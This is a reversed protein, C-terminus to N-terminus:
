RYLTRNCLHPCRCTMSSSLIIWTTMSMCGPKLRWPERRVQSVGKDLWDLGHEMIYEDVAHMSTMGIIHGHLGREQWMDRLATIGLYRWSSSIVIKAETEDVIRNLLNVTEPDFLEQGYEDKTPRGAEFLTASYGSSNLVGDFDLFIVKM